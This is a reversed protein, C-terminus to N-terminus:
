ETGGQRYWEYDKPIDFYGAPPDMERYDILEETGGVSMAGYEPVTGSSHTAILVAIGRIKKMEVAVQGSSAGSMNLMAKRIIDYLDKDVKIEETAWVESTSSGTIMTNSVSEGIIYKRCLRGGIKKTSDVATVTAQSSPRLQAMGEAFLSNPDVTTDTVETGSLTRISYIKFKHYLLYLLNTKRDYIVSQNTPDDRRARDKDLWVTITDDRAPMEMGPFIKLETFKTNLTIRSAAHTTSFALIMCACCLAPMMKSLLGIRM